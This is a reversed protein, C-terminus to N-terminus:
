LLMDSLEVFSSHLDRMYFFIQHSSPWEAGWRPVPVIKVGLIGEKPGSTNDHLIQFSNQL